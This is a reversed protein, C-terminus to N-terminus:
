MIQEWLITTYDDPRIYKGGPGSDNEGSVVAGYIMTQRPPEAVVAMRDVAYNTEARLATFSRYLQIGSSNRVGGAPNVIVNTDDSVHVVHQVYMGAASPQAEQLAGAVSDSLYRPGLTSGWPHTGQLLGNLVIDGTSGSVNTAIGQALFESSTSQAGRWFGDISGWTVADWDAISGSLPQAKLILAEHPIEVWAKNQRGYIVGDEPAEPVGGIPVGPSLVVRYMSRSVNVAYKPETVTVGWQDANSM